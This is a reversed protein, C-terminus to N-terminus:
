ESSSFPFILYIIFLDRWINVRNVARVWLSPTSKAQSIVSTRYGYVEGSEDPGLSPFVALQRAGTNGQVAIKTTVM